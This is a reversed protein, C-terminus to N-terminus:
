SISPNNPLVRIHSWQELSSRKNGTEYIRELLQVSLKELRPFSAQGCMVSFESAHTQPLKVGRASISIFMPGIAEQVQSFLINGLDLITSCICAVSIRPGLDTM